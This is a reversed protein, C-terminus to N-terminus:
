NPKKKQCLIKANISTSNTNELFKQKTEKKIDEKNETSTSNLIKIIDLDEESLLHITSNEHIGFDSLTFGGKLQKGAFILRQQDTPIDEKEQIKAKVKDITDSADVKLTIIKGTRTKVFIQMHSFKRVELEDVHKNKTMAKYTDAAAAKAVATKWETESVRTNMISEFKQRLFSRQRHIVARNEHDTSSIYVSCSPLGSRMHGLGPRDVPYRMKRMRLYLLLRSGNNINCEALTHGNELLKEHFMLIQLDPPIGEEDQIKYKVNEITDLPAVQLTIIKGSEIILIQISHSVSILHLISDNQINYDFLTHQNQTQIGDFILIQQDAPIDVKEQIKVKVNEITESAEVKLIISKGTLTKIFIQMHNSRLGLLVTSGDQIGFDSLTFGDKLQEGAFTLLQQDPPISEKDQIEAKLNQVTDLAHVALIIINGSPTRVFIKMAIETSRIEEFPVVTGTTNCSAYDKARPFLHCKGHTRLVLISEAFINCEPLTHDDKLQIGHFTLIQRYPPIGEKDQIMYKLNEITILGQVTLSIVKGTLTEVFIQVSERVNVLDVISEEQIVYNYLAYDDKIIEGAFMLIQQDPPIGEKHHIKTKVNRITDSPEVELTIIKRAFIKVFITIIKELIVLDIVSERQIGYLYLTREDKLIEGAFMLVQQDPPIDEKAQIMAKVNEITDLLDVELTIIKETHLTRVFVHMHSACRLVLLLTAEEQINYNFLTCKDELQKGDFILRQQDPLIGLKDQIKYKVNEIIDSAKAALTITINGTYTKIFIKMGGRLIAHITSFNQINYESLKYEDKLQKGAFMLRLEGPPIVAKDQIMLKVNETTDSPEVELVITKGTLTKVFIHM